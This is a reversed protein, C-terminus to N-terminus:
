RYTNGAMLEFTGLIASVGLAPIGVIIAMEIVEGAIPFGACASAVAPPGLALVILLTRLRYRM